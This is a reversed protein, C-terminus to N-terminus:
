RTAAIQDLHAFIDDITANAPAATTYTFPEGKSDFGTVHYMGSNAGISLYKFSQFKVPLTNVVEKPLDEEAKALAAARIQQAANELAARRVAEPDYPPANVGPDVSGERDPDGESSEDDPSDEEAPQEQPPMRQEVAERLLRAEETEVTVEPVGEAKQYINQTTNLLGM